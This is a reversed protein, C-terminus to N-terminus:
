IPLFFVYDRFTVKMTSNDDLKVDMWCGKSQCSEVVEASVTAQVSDKGSAMAQLESAPIVNVEEFAAGYTKDTTTASESTTTEPADAVPQKAQNCAAMTAAFLLLM